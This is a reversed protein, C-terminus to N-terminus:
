MLGILFIGSIALKRKSSLGLRWIKSNKARLQKICPLSVAPLPLIILLVDIILDSVVTWYKARLGVACDQLQSALSGWNVAFKAECGFIAILIFTITWMIVIVVSAKTTVDM